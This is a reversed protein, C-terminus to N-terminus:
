NINPTYQRMADIIMNKKETKLLRLVLNPYEKPSLKLHHSIRLHLSKRNYIKLLSDYDKNNIITDVEEKIKSYIEHVKISTVLTDMQRQLAEITNTQPKTYCRLKHQIEKTCMESIQHDYEKIFENFLFDKVSKFTSDPDLAQNEAIIRIVPEILYLNEIEAVELTHIQSEKYGDIEEKTMYDHDIIGKIELHHLSKVRDNNFAKTMEIVKHCNQCPIIHYQEYIHTYLQNDYSGREGEVFLVPKRNGLVEYLLYDPIHDDSDIIAIDWNNNGDYSKVWIKQSEKRSSAFDLDHTIYVLTKNQCVEEIKDWLKYMISKHLHIEPEDIVITTNDPAVLCQGILYIAVREGDSMKQAHYTGGEIHQALVTADQLIINRHPFISNWIKIIHDTIMIPVNAKEVEQILRM